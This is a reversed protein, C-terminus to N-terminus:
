GEPIFKLLVVGGGSVEFLTETNLNHLPVALSDRRGAYRASTVANLERLEHRVQYIHLLLHKVLM